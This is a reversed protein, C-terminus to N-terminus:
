WWVISGELSWRVMGGDGGYRGGGSVDGGYTSGEALVTDAGGFWGEGSADGCCWM